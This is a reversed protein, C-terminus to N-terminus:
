APAAFIDANGQKKRRRARYCGAHFTQAPIVFPEHQRHGAFAARPALRRAVLFRAAPIGPGIGLRRRRAALVLRTARAIRPQRTTAVRLFAAAPGRVDFVQELVAARLARPTAEAARAAGIEANRGPGAPAREERNRDARDHQDPHAEAHDVLDGRALLRDDGSEALVRVREIGAQVHRQWPRDLVDRHLVDAFDTGLANRLARRLLEDQGAVLVEDVEAVQNAPADLVQRVVLELKGIRLLRQTFHALRRHTSRDGLMLEVADQGAGAAGVDLLGNACAHLRDEVTIARADRHLADLDLLGVRGLLHDLRELVDGGSLLIGIGRHVNCAGVLLLKEG